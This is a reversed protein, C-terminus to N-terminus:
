SYTGEIRWGTGLPGTWTYYDTGTDPYWPEYPEYPWPYPWPYYPQYYDEKVEVWGKGLCGHCTKEAYCDLVKGTGYCVPCKDAKM